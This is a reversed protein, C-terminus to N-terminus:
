GIAKACVVTAQGNMKCKCFAVPRTLFAVPIAPVSCFLRFLKVFNQCVDHLAQMAPISNRVKSQVQLVVIECTTLSYARMKLLIFVLIFAM